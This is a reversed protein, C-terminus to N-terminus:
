LDGENLWDYVEEPVFRVMKRRRKFPIDRKSVLNYIHGVSCQLYEAVQNVTWLSTPMQIGLTSKKTVAKV